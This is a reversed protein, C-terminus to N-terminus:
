GGFRQDNDSGRGTLRTFDEFSHCTDAGTEFSIRGLRVLEALHEDLRQMGERSGGEVCSYSRHTEGARILNRIAPTAVMIEVAVARGPGDSRRCLAPSVVGHIATGLQTRVQAQQAAPFVDIIRDITQATDQTHLTGFVLHGTEAAT